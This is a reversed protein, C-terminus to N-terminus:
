EFDLFQAFMIGYRTVVKDKNNIIGSIYKKDFMNNIISRIIQPSSEALYALDGLAVALTQTDADEKECLKKVLFM